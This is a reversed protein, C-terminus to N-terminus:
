YKLEEINMYEKLCEPNELAGLNKPNKGNIIDRISLEVIKGSKTKPIDMIKIIKAPVHRISTHTKIRDKIIKILDNTLEENSKLKVFLVIRIDDDWKQAVAVSEDVEDLSEVARYIEATGIRVGGPNLTADSRGYIIMGNNDTFNAYDGQVWVNEFKSFYSNIYKVNKEDNWFGIPMSPLASKCILEGKQSTSKGNEDFIDVDVGLCKCQIEGSFVPLLPNGSVFCSVIDTGGSISCLHVHKKIYKYVYNFTEHILPSGTSAITKLKSLNYYKKININKQKLTDLYKASVGFFTINENEIIQFLYDTTPIFPSGDYLYITADSSLCTVLWNWM